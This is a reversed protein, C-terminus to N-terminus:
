VVCSDSMSVHLDAPNASLQIPIPALDLAPAEDKSTKAYIRALSRTRDYEVVCAYPGRFPAYQYMYWLMLTPYADVLEISSPEASTEDDLQLPLSLQCKFADVSTHSLSSTSPTPYL